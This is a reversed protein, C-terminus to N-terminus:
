LKGKIIKDDWIKSFLEDNEIAYEFRGASQSLLHIMTKEVYGFAMGLEKARLFLDIDESGNKFKENLGKLKKWSKKKVKFCYGSPVVVDKENVALNKKVVGDVVRISIGYLVMKSNINTQWVGTIDATDSAMDMLTQKDPLTDDNLFIINDTTAIKAGKNCNESFTGGSVIIINFLSDNLRSLCNALMGHKDHHPIVIDAVKGIHKRYIQEQWYLQDQGNQNSIGKPRYETRFLFKNCFTPKHGAKTIRIWLDWDNYRKFETDFKPKCKARMLSMTSIGRFWDIFELSKRSRPMKPKDDNYIFKSLQFIGFAWDAKKDKQLANYLNLLCDKDLELDNDCFFIYEGKAKKVGENRAWSAGKADKDLVEIIEYNTYTQAKLSPLTTNKEGVRSPIIISILEKM